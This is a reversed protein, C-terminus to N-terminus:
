RNDSHASSLPRSERRALDDYRKSRNARRGGAQPHDESRRRIGPNARQGGRLAGFRRSFRPPSVPNRSGSSASRSDANTLTESQFVRVFESEFRSRWNEPRASPAAALETDRRLRRKM